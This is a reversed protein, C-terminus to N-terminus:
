CKKGSFGVMEEDLSQLLYWPLDDADRTLATDSAPLRARTIEEAVPTSCAGDDPPYFITGNRREAPKRSTLEQGTLRLKACTKGAAPLGHLILHLTRLNLSGKERMM